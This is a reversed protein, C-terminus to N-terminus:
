QRGMQLQGYEANDSSRYRAFGANDIYLNGTLLSFDGTDVKLVMVSTETNSGAAEYFWTYRLQAARADMRTWMGVANTGKEIIARGTNIGVNM